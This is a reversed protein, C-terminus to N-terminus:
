KMLVLRQQHSFISNDIQIQYQGKPLHNLQLQHQTRYGKSPV